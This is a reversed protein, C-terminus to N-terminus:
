ASSPSFLGILHTDGKFIHHYFKEVTSARPASAAQSAVLALM